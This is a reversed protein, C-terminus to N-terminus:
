SPPSDLNEELKIPLNCAVNSGYARTNIATNFIGCARASYLTYVELQSLLIYYVYALTALCTRVCAELIAKSPEVRKFGEQVAKIRQQINPLM